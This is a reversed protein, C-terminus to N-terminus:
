AWSLIGACVPGASCASADGNNGSQVAHATLKLSASKGQFGNGAAIPLSWSVTFTHVTTPLAGADSGVYLNTGTTAYSASHNDAISLALHDTGTLLGGDTAVTDLGIFAPASGSYTAVFTCTGSDGPVINSVNCVGTADSALTVTGSSFNNTESAPTSTFLGFTVGAVLTAVAGVTAVAGAGLAMRKRLSISM